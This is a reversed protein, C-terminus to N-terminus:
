KSCLTVPPECLTRYSIVRDEMQVGRGAFHSETQITTKFDWKPYLEDVYRVANSQWKHQAALRFTELRIFGILSLLRVEPLLEAAGIYTLLVIKNSRSSCHTRLM